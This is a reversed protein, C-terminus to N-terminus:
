KLERCEVVTYGHSICVNALTFVIWVYAFALLGFVALPIHRDAVVKPTMRRVLWTFPSVVTKLAQYFFNSAPDQGIGRTLIFVVGQGVLALGAIEIVLKIARILFLQTTFEFVARACLIFTRV